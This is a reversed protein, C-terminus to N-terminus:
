TYNTTPKLYFMKKEFITRCKGKFIKIGYKTAKKTKKQFLASQLVNQVDEECVERFRLTTAM